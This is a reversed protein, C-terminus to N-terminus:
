RRDRRELDARGAGRRLAGVRADHAQGLLGRRFACRHYPQGVADAAQNTGSASPTAPDAHSTLPDACRATATNTTAVGHGSSSAAGTAITAPSDRADRNPTTTRPPAASSLRPLAVVITSSM